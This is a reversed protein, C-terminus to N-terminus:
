ASSAPATSCAKPRPHTRHAGIHDNFIGRVNTVAVSHSVLEPLFYGPPPAGLRQAWDRPLRRQRGLLEKSKLATNMAANLKDIRAQPTGEYNPYGSEAITPM